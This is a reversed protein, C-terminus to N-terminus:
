GRGAAGETGGSGIFAMFKGVADNRRLTSVRVRTRGTKETDPFASIALRSRFMGLTLHTESEDVVTASHFAGEDTFFQRAEEIVRIPALDTLTETIM